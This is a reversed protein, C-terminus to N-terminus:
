LSDGGMSAQIDTIKNYLEKRDEGRTLRCQIMGDRLIYVDKAYSASFADHTVM